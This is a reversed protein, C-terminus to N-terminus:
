QLAVATISRRGHTGSADCLVLAGRIATGASTLATTCGRLTAGTTIVDDILLVQSGPPPLGNPAFKVRDRLNASRANPSLGVSDRVGRGMRLAAGVGVSGGAAGLPGAVREAMKGALALMHDGGRARAARARSPAPVLWWRLALPRAVQPGACWGFACHLAAMALLEALPDALERRGREKYALLAARLSGSYRGVAVTPPTGPPLDAPLTVLRPTARERRCRPCWCGEGTRGCGACRVPLVLDVLDAFLERPDMDVLM